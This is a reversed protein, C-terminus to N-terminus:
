KKEGKINASYTLLCPCNSRLDRCEERSVKESLKKLLVRQRKMMKAQGAEIRKVVWAMGVVVTGVVSLLNAIFNLHEM